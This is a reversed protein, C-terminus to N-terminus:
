PRSAIEDSASQTSPLGKFRQLFARQATISDLAQEKTMGQQVLKSAEQFEALTLKVKATTAASHVESAAQVIPKAAASLQGREAALDIVSQPLRGAAVEQKILDADSLTATSPTEAPAGMADKLKQAVTIARGGRYGIAIKAVDAGVDAKRALDILARSKDAALPLARGLIAAQVLNGIVRGGTEPDSVNPLPEPADHAKMRAMATETTDAPDYPLTADNRHAWITELASLPNLGSKIGAGTKALTDRLSKIAGGRFTGPEDAAVTGIDTSSHDLNELVDSESPAGGETTVNFERGDSLKVHYTQPM